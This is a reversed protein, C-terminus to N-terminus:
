AAASRSTGTWGAARAVTGSAARRPSAHCSADRLQCALVALRGVAVRKREEVADRLPLYPAAQQLRDRDGAVLDREARALQRDRAAPAGASQLDRERDDTRAVDELHDILAVVRADVGGVQAAQDRVRGPQARC